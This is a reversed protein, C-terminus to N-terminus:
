PGTRGWRDGKDGRVMKTGGAGGAAVRMELGNLEGQGVRGEVHDSVAVDEQVVSRWMRRPAMKSTESQKVLSRWAKLVLGAHAVRCRRHTNRLATKAGSDREPLTWQLATPLAMDSLARVKSVWEVAVRHAFEARGMGLAAGAFRNDLSLASLADSSPNESRMVLNTPCPARELAAVISVLSPTWSEESGWTRALSRARCGWSCSSGQLLGGAVGPIVKPWVSSSLLSRM